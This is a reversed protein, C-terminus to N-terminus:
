VTINLGADLWAHPVESLPNLGDQWHTIVCPKIESHRSFASSFRDRANLAVPTKKYVGEKQATEALFLKENSNL